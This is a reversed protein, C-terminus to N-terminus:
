VLLSTAEDLSLVGRYIRYNWLSITGRGNGYPSSYLTVVSNTNNSFLSAVTSQSVLNGNIYYRLVRDSDVAIMCWNNTGAPVYDFTGSRNDLSFRCYAQRSGTVASGIGGPYLNTQGYTVPIIQAFITLNSIVEGVPFGLNLGTFYFGLNSSPVTFRNVNLASDWALVSNNTITFPNGSVEDINRGQELGKFHFLLDSSRKKYEHRRSM